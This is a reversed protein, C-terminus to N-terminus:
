REMWKPPDRKAHIVASRAGCKTCRLYRAVEPLRLHAVYTDTPRAKQLREALDKPVFWNARGCALCFVWVDRRAM